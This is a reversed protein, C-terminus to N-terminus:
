KKSEKKGGSEGDRGDTNSGHLDTAFIAQDAALFTAVSPVSKVSQFRTAGTGPTVAVRSGHIQEHKEGRKREEKRLGEGM